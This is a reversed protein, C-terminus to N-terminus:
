VYSGSQVKTGYAVTANQARGDDGRMYRAKRPEKYLETRAKDRVVTARIGHLFPV